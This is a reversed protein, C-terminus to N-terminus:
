SIFMGVGLPIAFKAHVTALKSLDCVFSIMMRFGFLISIVGLFGLLWPAADGSFSGGLFYEYTQTFWLIARGM